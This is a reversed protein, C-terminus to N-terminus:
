GRGFGPPDEGAGDDTQAMRDLGKQVLGPEGRVLVLDQPNQAIGARVPQRSSLQGVAHAGTRGVHRTHQIAELSGSPDLPTFPPLVGAPGDGADGGSPELEELIELAVQFPFQSRDRPPQRPDLEPTEGVERLRQFALSPATLM